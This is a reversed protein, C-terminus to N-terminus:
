FWLLVYKFVNFIMQSYLLGQLLTQDTFFNSLFSYSILHTAFIVFDYPFLLLCNYDNFRINLILLRPM